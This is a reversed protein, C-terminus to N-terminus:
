LTYSLDLGGIEEIPKGIQSQLVSYLQNCFSVDSLAMCGVYRHGNLSIALFITQKSKESMWVARLFGVEGSTTKYEGNMSSVWPPPWSQLFSANILPHNRLELM